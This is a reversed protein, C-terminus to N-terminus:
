GDFEEKSGYEILMDSEVEGLLDDFVVVAENFAQDGESLKKNDQMHIELYCLRDRLQEFIEKIIDREYQGPIKKLSM